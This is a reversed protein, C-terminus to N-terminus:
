PRWGYAGLPDVAEGGSRLEFHLHPGTARGTSGVTAIPQGAQVAQGPRVHLDQCHAYLASSGDGHDVVVVRGYGAREAALTVTGGEAARVPTGAPAAIDLGRHMRHDGEFPDARHGFRSSLRGLVPLLGRRAAPPRSRAAPERPPAGGMREELEAALGLGRGAAIRAALEQDFLDSFVEMAGGSFIGDPVTRRMERIMVQALYAEFQRAAERGEAARPAPAV